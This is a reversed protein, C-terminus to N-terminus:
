PHTIAYMGIIVSVTLVVLAFMVVPHNGTLVSASAGMLMVWPRMADLFQSM